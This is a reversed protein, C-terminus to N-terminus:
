GIRGRRGKGVRKEWRRDEGVMGDRGLFGRIGKEVTGYVGMEGEDGDGEGGRGKGRM